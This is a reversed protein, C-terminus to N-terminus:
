SICIQKEGRETQITRLHRALVTPDKIDAAEVSFRIQADNVGGMILNVKDNDQLPINMKHILALKAFTYEFLSQQPQPKYQLMTSMATHLDRKPQFNVLLMNKWESWSFLRTPLGRYWTQAAGRLKSLAMHSTVCDSWAYILAYEDVAHLWMEIDHVLPDFEAVIDKSISVSTSVDAPKANGIKTFIKDIGELFLQSVKSMTSASEDDQSRRALSMRRRRPVPPPNM